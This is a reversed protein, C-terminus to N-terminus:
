PTMRVIKGATEESIYVNGDPGASIGSPGGNSNVLEFLTMAGATTVRGIVSSGAFSLNGNPGATMVNCNGPTPIAFETFVGATTM